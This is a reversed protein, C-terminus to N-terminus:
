DKLERSGREYKRVIFFTDFQSVVCIRNGRLIM